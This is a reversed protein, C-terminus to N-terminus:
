ATVEKDIGLLNELIDLSVDFSSKGRLIPDFRYGRAQMAAVVVKAREDNNARAKVGEEARKRRADQLEQEYAWLGAVSRAPLVVETGKEVLLVRVGPKLEFNRGWGSQYQRYTDEPTASLAVAEVNWSRGLQAVGKHEVVAYREGIVIDKRQM